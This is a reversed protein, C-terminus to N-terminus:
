YESYFPLNYKKCLEKPEGEVKEEIFGVDQDSEYSVKVVSNVAIRRSSNKYKIKVKKRLSCLIIIGSDLDKIDMYVFVYFRSQGLVETIVGTYNM